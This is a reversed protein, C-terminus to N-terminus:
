TFSLLNGKNTVDARVVCCLGAMLVSSAVWHKVPVAIFCAVVYFQKESNAKRGLPMIPNWISILSIRVV